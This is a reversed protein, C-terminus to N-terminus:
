LIPSFLRAVRSVFRFGFSRKEFSGLDFCESNEFDKMFSAELAKVFSTESNVEVPSPTQGLNELVLVMMEFNLRFSRNDLNATGVAAITDDVLVTKQHLFGKKYEFVKVHSEQLEPLFTRSALDVVLNDSKEPILVRVDVGRLSAMQLCSLVAHDPVFYPSTVWLRKQASQILGVFLLGATELSDAPGSPIAVALQEHKSLVMGQPEWELDILEHTAWYWDELFALQICQVVPGRIKVKTDRWDPRLYEDGINMGGVYAEEGDIIVTKRHNRFNLRFRHPWNSTKFGSVRVSNESLEQVYTDSLQISGLEDYLLYVAVGEKRKQILHAKLERGLNDDRLIYYQVLIYKKAKLISQFVEDYATVGDTFLELHNGHTIPVAALKELAQISKPINEINPRHKPSWQALKERIAKVSALKLRRLQIYGSFRYGSFTWYLPLTVWPFTVLSISWAIAGRATRCQMIAHIASLIALTEAFLTIYFFVTKEIALM